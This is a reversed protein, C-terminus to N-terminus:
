KQLNNVGDSSQRFGDVGTHETPQDHAAVLRQVGLVLSLIEDAYQIDGAELDELYELSAM